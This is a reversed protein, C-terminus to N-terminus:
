PHKFPTVNISLGPRDDYVKDIVERVIQKDDVWVVGNLADLIKAYNDCDPKTPPRIKDNRALEKQAESLTTKPIPIWAVIEVVIPGPYPPIAGMVQQAAYKLQATYTRTRSDTFVGPHNPASRATGKGRPVGRLEIVVPWIMVSSERFRVKGM